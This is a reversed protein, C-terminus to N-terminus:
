IEGVATRGSCFAAAMKRRNMFWMLHRLFDSDKLSFSPNWPFWSHETSEAQYYIALKLRSPSASISLDPLFLLFTWNKTQLSASSSSIVTKKKHLVVHQPLNNIRMNFLSFLCLNGNTTEFIESYIIMRKYSFHNLKRRLNAAM